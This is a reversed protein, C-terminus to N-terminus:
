GFALLLGGLNFLSHCLMAPLLSGSRRKLEGTLVGLVCAACATVPGVKLHIIGFLLAISLSAAIGALAIRVHATALSGALASQLLGRFVVEEQVPAGLAFCLYAQWPALHMGQPMGPENVHLLVITVVTGLLAGLAFAHIVHRYAPRQWGMDSPTLWGRHIVWGMLVCSIALTIAIVAPVMASPTLHLAGVILFAPLYVMLFLLLTLAASQLLKLM